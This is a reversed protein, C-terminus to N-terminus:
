PTQGLQHPALELTQGDSFSVHLPANGANYALHTIRGQPTRFVAYLPTDASIDPDPVGLGSLSALWYLTHSRTEGREVSGHPAWRARAQDPDALAQYSVLIDQWIDDPTGDSMGRKQYDAKEAPLAAMCQRIYAPDAALYTSAPTIPILNIGLIQRPEETWWTNYSYKGGFVMSAFPRGFQPDLVEHHLDFWYEQVSAIETTYLYLGLDRLAPRQTAEGLLILGAWANIAESSSEQNNGDAFTAEGSAWSHGEYTDFNRLFPFDARGREPTAIDAALRDVMGGWRSPALWDPDLLGAYAAAMLWYGYHFHHDNMDRASNYEQPYGVVTGVRRDQVFYGEHDGDFWDQMRTELQKLLRDRVSTDGEAQAVAILQALAGLGKGTWYTGRGMGPQTFIQRSKANDGVLISRLSADQEPDRLSGWWPVFGHYPREVSFATGRLLRISGRVSDYTYLVPDTGVRARWQHPYLGLFTDRNEGERANTTVTYSTRVVSRQRDYQWHARTQGPFAYAVSLFDRLTRESLDPLGALSFYKAGAPLHLVLSDPATWEWRGGTPGFAAFGKGGVSFAMVRSDAFAPTTGQAPAALQLRVTSAESDYYSFPSGHLITAHLTHGAGALLDIGALWDDVRVLRAGTVTGDAPAVVIDAAHVFRVDNNGRSTHELTRRPLGVEFGAQAARYSMPHAHLPESPWQYMVSSYWQNTPVARGTLEGAAFRPEEPRSETTSLLGDRPEALVRGLGVTESGSDSRAPLTIASLIGALVLAPVYQCRGSSRASPM